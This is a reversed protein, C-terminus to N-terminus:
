SNKATLWRRGGTRIITAIWWWGAALWIILVPLLLRLELQNIASLHAPIGIASALVFVIAFRMRPLVATAILGFACILRLWHSCLSEFPEGTVIRTIGRSQYGVFQKPTHLKLLYAAPSLPEGAFPDHEFEQPAPMSLGPPPRAAFELNAHFRADRKEMAAPDGFVRWQNVYFPLVMGIPLLLAVAARRVPWRQSVTAWAMLVLLPVVATNRLLLLVGGVFGASIVRRWTVPGSAVARLDFLLVLVAMWLCVGFEERLGQTCLDISWPEVALFAAVVVGVIPEFLRAMGVAVAPLMLIGFSWSLVRMALDPDSAHRVIPAHMASWLPSKWGAAFPNATRLAQQQYYRVDPQLQRDDAEIVQQFQYARM